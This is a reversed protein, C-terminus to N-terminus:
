RQAKKGQPVFPLAADERWHGGSALIRKHRVLKRFVRRLGLRLRSRAAASARRALSDAYRKEVPGLRQRRLWDFPPIADVNGNPKANEKHQSGKHDENKEAARLKRTSRQENGAISPPAIEV